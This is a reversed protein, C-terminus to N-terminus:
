RDGRERKYAKEIWKPRAVALPVMSQSGWSSSKGSFTFSSGGRKMKFVKQQRRVKREKGRKYKV